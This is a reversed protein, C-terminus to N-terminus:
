KFVFWLPPAAFMMKGGIVRQLTCRTIKKCLFRPAPHLVTKKGV